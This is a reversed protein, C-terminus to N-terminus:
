RPGRWMQDVTPGDPVDFAGIPEFGARRYRAVNAPNSSELFAAAHEADIRALRDAVLAMGAGKGRHDPHTALLSLYWHPETPHSGEFAEYCAMMQDGREPCVVPVMAAVEAEGTADLEPVGPPVWLAVAAFDGLVEIGDYRMAAEVFPVWYRRLRAVRDAVGPFTWLGWVPDEAFSQAFVEVVEHRDAPTALRVEENM